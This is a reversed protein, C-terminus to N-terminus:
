SGRKSSPENPLRDTIVIPQDPISDIISDEIDVHMASLDFVDRPKQDKDLEM